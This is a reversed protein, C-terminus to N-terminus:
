ELAYFRDILSQDFVMDHTILMPIGVSGTFVIMPGCWAAIQHVIWLVLEYNGKHFHIDLPEHEDGKFDSFWIPTYQYAERGQIYLDCVKDNIMESVTYEPFRQFFARMEAVSPYRSDAHLTPLTIGYEALGQAMEPDRTVPIMGISDGM